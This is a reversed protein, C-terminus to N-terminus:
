LKKWLDANSSYLAEQLNALDKELKYSMYDLKYYKAVIERMSRRPEIEGENNNESSKIV